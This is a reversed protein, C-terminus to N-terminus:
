NFGYLRAPNDVLIAKRVAEDPAWTLLLDLLEADDPYNPPQVSVHPWNSAWLMREPAHAILQSSLLGVDAYDPGGTKSTEYCAAVKVYCNGRDVLRLLARFEASDPAVPELFKGMHDIVYTGRIQNLLSEYELINRGDFQVIPHWGFSSIRDNIPLLQDLGVAGGPLQMIRAGRVGLKDLRDLEAEPVDSTVCVVARANEGLKALGDLTCRNDLQYANGQVVVARTLGLRKQVLAYDEVTADEAPPPPGGPQGEHDSTYFHIHTDVAGPPTRLKPAPGELPRTM